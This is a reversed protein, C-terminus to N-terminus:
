THFIKSYVMKKGQLITDFVEMNIYNKKSM